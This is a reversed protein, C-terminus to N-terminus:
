ERDNRHAPIVDEIVPMMTMRAIEMEQLCEDTVKGDFPQPVSGFEPPFEKGDFTPRCPQRGRNWDRRKSTEYVITVESFRLSHIGGKKLIPIWTMEVAQYLWAPVRM